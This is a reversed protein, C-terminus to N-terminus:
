FEERLIRELEAKDNAKIAKVVAVNELAIVPDITYKACLATFENQTM